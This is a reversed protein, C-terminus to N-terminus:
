KELSDESGPIWGMDGANASPNKVVLVVQSARLITRASPLHPITSDAQACLGLFSVPFFLDRKYEFFSVCLLPKSSKVTSRLNFLYEINLESRM